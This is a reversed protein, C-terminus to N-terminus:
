QPTGEEKADEAFVHGKVAIGLALAEDWLSLWSGTEVFQLGLCKIAEQLEEKGLYGAARQAGLFLLPVTVTNPLSRFDVAEEIFELLLWLAQKEPTDCRNFPILTVPDGDQFTPRETM